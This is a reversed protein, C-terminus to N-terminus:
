LIRKGLASLVLEAALEATKNQHDFAPNLEVIDISSILGSEAILELAFHSERYNLGGPAKTSVGPAVDPDIVDIDFSVHIGSVDKVAAVAADVITALGHHDIDSMTFPTIGSQNILEREGDDLDRIGILAARKPEIKPAFGLLNVLRPDGLGLSVAFPMGHVNGSLSTNPTNIDGHADFWILGFNQKLRRFRSSVGAISGIALSHDGGITVPVTGNELAQEVALAVEQSVAMIEPVCKAADHRDGWCVTKPVNIEIETAEIGLRQIREKLEAVQM